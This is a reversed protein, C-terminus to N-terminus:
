TEQMEQMPLHIRLWQVVQPSRLGELNELTTKKKKKLTLREPRYM